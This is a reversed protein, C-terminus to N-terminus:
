LHKRMYSGVMFGAANVILDSWKGYWWLKEHGPKDSMEYTKCFGFGKISEPKYKGVYTEFLEWLAGGTMSLVFTKPYLYGVLLFLIFHSVSWGDLGYKASGKFLDWELVDKHDKVHECRYKGYLGIAIPALLLSCYYKNTGKLFNMKM